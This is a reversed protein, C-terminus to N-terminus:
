SWDGLCRLAALVQRPGAEYVLAAMLVEVWDPVNPEDDTVVRGVLVYAHERILRRVNPDAGGEITLWEALMEVGHGGTGCHVMLSTAVRSAATGNNPVALRDVVTCALAAALYWHTPDVPGITPRDNAGEDFLDDFLNDGTM